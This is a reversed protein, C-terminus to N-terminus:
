EGEKRRTLVWWLAPLGLAAALPYAFDEIPALGLHLGALHEPSYYFLEAAIMLSDFVATLTGLVLITIGTAALHRRISRAPQRLLALGAAAVIM